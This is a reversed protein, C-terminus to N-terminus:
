NSFYPDVRDLGCGSQGSGKKKVRKFHGNQSAVRKVRSLGVQGAQKAMDKCLM